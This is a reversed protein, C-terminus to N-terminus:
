KIQIFKSRVTPRMRCCSDQCLNQRISIWFIWGLLLFIYQIIFPQKLINYIKDFICEQFWCFTFMGEECGGHRWCCIRLRCTKRRVLLDQRYVLFITFWQHQPWRQGNFPNRYILFYQIGYPQWGSYLVKNQLITIM